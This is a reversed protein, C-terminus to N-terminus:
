ILKINRERAYEEEKKIIDKGSIIKMKKLKFFCKACATIDVSADHADEFNEEFLKFYLEALTPWKFGYPGKIQCFSTSKKMTCIKSVESINSVLNTRLFEAEVIKTDFDMNHAVLFKADKIDQVFKELVLKLDVGEQLAKETTIRHIISSYPPIVFGQPKIIYNNDSTKNGSSDYRSWAIQVLRPWNDLDSVPAKWDKPLGTTETDFVLYM